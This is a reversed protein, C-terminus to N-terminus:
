TAAIWTAGGFNRVRDRELHDTVVFGFLM